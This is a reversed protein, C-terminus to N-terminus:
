NEKKVLGKCKPYKSCGWFEGYPGKRLIMPAGCLPCKIDESIIREKQVTEQSSTSKRVEKINNEMNNYFTTLFDIGKLQGKAILDLDKELESTYNVNILKPFSQDLYHSLTMGKDTPIITNDDITCYGRTPDILTGVITAFTSPRGIGSSELEKIFTAEKYRAPPLTEKKDVTMSPRNSHDIVEGKTFTEKVVDEDDKDKYAYVKLYGDFTLEKSVLNFYHNGCVITYTTENTTSSAMMTAVTRRYIIEYVKLLGKDSIYKSLLEPTMNLDVPRIAEHGDQTNESKKAKRIPSFYKNGYNTKVYNELVPLFEPAFEPSDTRIYTILAIHQGNVDLGEFLKQAYSMASKVSIGLKSSVEQQFTSTTFPSKPNSIREKSTIDKITFWEGKQTRNYCDDAVDNCHEYSPQKIEKNDDGFYKAKFQTENKTFLLNLEAYQVPVFAKIEEERDVLIKLGASQCRGVSKAGVSRKAIPSLRYGLMKDLKQRSQAADVLNEDIDRPNDLAKLVASKTIEHFTARRYKDKPIKLFKRLSWAIAEGERDPDSCIYVLDALTVQEKLKDVVEKKESSVVYNAKFNEDPFIGTNHYSGKKDAIESIHGVSAMVIYNNPLFQKITKVKNPSEVLVLIRKDKAM